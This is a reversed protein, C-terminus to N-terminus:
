SLIQHSTSAFVQSACLYDNFFLVVKKYKLINWKIFIAYSEEKIILYQLSKFIKM